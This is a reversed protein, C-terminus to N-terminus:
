WIYVHRTPIPHQLAQRYRPVTYDSHLNFLFLWKRIPTVIYNSLLMILLHTNAGGQQRHLPEAETRAKIRLLESELFEVRDLLLQHDKAPVGAPTANPHVDVLSPRSGAQTAQVAMMMEMMRQMAVMDVGGPGGDGVAAAPAAESSKRPVTRGVPEPVGALSEKGTSGEGAASEEGWASLGQIDMKFAGRAGSGDPSPPSPPMEEISEEEIAISSGGGSSGGGLSEEGAAGGPRWMEEEELKQRKERAELERLRQAMTEIERQKVAEKEKVAAARRQVELKADAVRQREAEEEDAKRQAEQQVRQQQQFVSTKPAQPALEGTDPDRLYDLDQTVCVCLSLCLTVVAGLSPFM